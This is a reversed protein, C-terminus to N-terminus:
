FSFLNGTYCFILFAELTQSNTDHLVIKWSAKANASIMTKLIDSEKIVQNKDVYYEKRGKKGDIFKFFIKMNTTGIM